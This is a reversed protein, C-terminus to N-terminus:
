VHSKGNALYWSHIISKCSNCEFIEATGTTRDITLRYTKGARDFCYKDTDVPFLGSVWERRETETNHFLLIQTPKNPKGSRGIYLCLNNVTNRLTNNTILVYTGTLFSSLQRLNAM